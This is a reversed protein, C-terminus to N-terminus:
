PVTAAPMKSSPSLFDRGLSRGGWAIKIILVQEGFYDGVVIGFELEPGIRNPAGYGVTLNGRREFFNIWVDERVVWKGDKKLHKYFDKFEPAESQYEALKMQAQGVMNSQGALIFVKVKRTMDQASAVSALLCLALGIAFPRTRM